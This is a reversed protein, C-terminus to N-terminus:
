GLRERSLHRKGCNRCVRIRLVYGRKRRTAQVPMHACGCKRCEIGRPKDEATARESKRPESM